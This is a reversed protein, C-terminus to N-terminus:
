SLEIKKAMTIAEHDKGGMRFPTRGIESFGNKIYFNIARLNRPYVQLWVCQHNVSKLIKIVADKLHQGIKQSAYNKLVYIRELQSSRKDSCLETSAGLNIKAYGVPCQNMYAILFRKSKDALDKKMLAVAFHAECYEMLQSHDEFVFAYNENFTVQGLLSLIAADKVRAEHIKM